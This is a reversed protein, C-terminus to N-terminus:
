RHLYDKGLFRFKRKIRENFIPQLAAWLLHFGAPLNMLMLMSVNEPYALNVVSLVAKLRGM